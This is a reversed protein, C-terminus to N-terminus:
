NCLKHYGVIRGYTDFMPYTNCEIIVAHPCPMNPTCKPIIISRPQHVPVPYMIAAPQPAPTTQRRQERMENFVQNLLVGALVEETRGAHATLTSLALVLTAIIKFM